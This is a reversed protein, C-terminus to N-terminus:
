RGRARWEAEALRKAVASTKGQGFLQKARRAIFAERAPPDQLRAEQVEADVIVQDVTTQGPLEGRQAAETSAVLERLGLERLFTTPDKAGALEANRAIAEKEARTVRVRIQDNRANGKPRGGKRGQRPSGAKLSM